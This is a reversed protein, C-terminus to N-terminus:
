LSAEPIRRSYIKGGGIRDSSHFAACVAKSRNPMRYLKGLLTFCYHLLQLVLKRMVAKVPHTALSEAGNFHKYHSRNRMLPQSIGFYL